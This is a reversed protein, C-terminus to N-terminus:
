NNGRQGKGEPRQARDVLDDFNDYGAFNLLAILSRLYDIRKEPAMTDIKAFDKAYAMQRQTGEGPDFLIGRGDWRLLYGNHNRTKTPVASATGLVVLERTSM